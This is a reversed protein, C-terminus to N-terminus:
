ATMPRWTMDAQPLNEYAAYMNTFMTDGGQDPVEIAYLFSGKHPVETYCTDHHFWMEGDPLTGIPKGNERINTILTFTPNIKKDEHRRAAPRGREAITGLQGAFSIQENEDLEQGRFLLVIHRHWADMVRTVTEPSMERRLDLGRVEAGLAPSLPVIDLDATTTVM